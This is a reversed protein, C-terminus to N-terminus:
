FVKYVFPELVKGVHLENLEEDGLEEDETTERKAKERLRERKGLKKRTM